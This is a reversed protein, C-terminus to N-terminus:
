AVDVGDSVDVGAEARQAARERARAERRDGHEFARHHAAPEAERADDVHRQGPLARLQPQRLGRQADHGRLDRGKEHLAHARRLRTPQRDRAALEARRLRQRDPEHVLHMRVALREIGRKGGSQRLGQTACGARNRGRLRQHRARQVRRGGLQDVVGRAQERLAARPGSPMSPMVANRCFREGAHAGRHAEVLNEDGIAALDRAAHNARRTREAIAGNSHEALRVGCRRVNREGVLGDREAALGRGLRVQADVGHQRGALAGAGVGHVGAVAEEGFAGVERLGAGVGAEHEDARRCRGDGRHAVLGARLPAHQGRAHGAHRTMEAVVLGVGREDPLCVPHPIRQEHLGDGAATATAHTEHVRRALKGVGDHARSSLGRGREAVARQHQLAEDGVAAVDLDLHEGIRM